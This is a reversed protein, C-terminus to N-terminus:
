IVDLTNAFLQFLELVNSCWAGIDLCWQLIRKPNFM